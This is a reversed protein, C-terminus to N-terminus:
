YLYEFETESEISYPKGDIETLEGCDAESFVAEAIKIAEEKSAATVDVLFHGHVRVDVTYEM